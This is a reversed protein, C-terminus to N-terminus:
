QRQEQRAGASRKWGCERRAVTLGPAYLLEEELPHQWRCFSRSTVWAVEDLRGLRALIRADIKDNKRDSEYILRVKRANAVVVQHGLGELLRSVWPSHTGAEMVIRAATRTFLITFAPEITRVRDEEIITGARDLVCYRSWRDGLDIGITIESSYQPQNSPAATHNQQMGNEEGEMRRIISM